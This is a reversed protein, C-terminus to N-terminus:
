PKELLWTHIHSDSWLSPQVSSFQHKPVTTNSFVRSLGKSQLSLWGILGLPFWDQINMALVSVSASVRISQSGSAFFQSMPLSQHQCLNFTPSPSPLPCSPQIADGVWHVHTQALKLLQHHLPLGPTSCDMPDCFTPCLQAVSSFQVDGSGHMGQHSPSLISWQLLHGVLFPSFPLSTGSLSSSQYFGEGHGLGWFRFINGEM